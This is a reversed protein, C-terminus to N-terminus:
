AVLDSIKIRVNPREALTALGDGWRRMGDRDRDIPTGCHNLVFLQNPFNGALRAAEPLQHAFVM